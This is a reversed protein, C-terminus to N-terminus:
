PSAVVTMSGLLHEYIDPDIDPNMAVVYYRTYGEESRFDTVIHRTNRWYPQDPFDAVGKKKEIDYQRAAYGKGVTLDESSYIEVTSLTLFDNADFYRIFIQSRERAAGKGSVSYLSLSKISPVYEVEMNEPIRFRVHFIDGGLDMEPEFVRSPSTMKVGLEAFFDQPNMWKLVGDAMPEYGNVRIEDGIYLAFHLHKREGDTEESEGDGLNGIFQGRAVSDGEQLDSSALDLHGYIAKIHENKVVHDIVILGGYGSVWGKKVIVGEAIANVPVDDDVDAYEIDDGVHYGTFRDQVYEGFGKFTRREVYGAIPLDVLAEEMVASDADSSAPAPGNSAIDAVPTCGFGLSVLAVFAILKKM